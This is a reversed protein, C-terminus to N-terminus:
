VSPTRQKTEAIFIYILTSGTVRETPKSMILIKLLDLNTRYDMTLKKFLVFCTIDGM